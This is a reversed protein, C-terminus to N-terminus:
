FKGIVNLFIGQDDFTLDTLDDSFKGFNYGIGAKVNKGFHRYGAVVAGLDTTNASPSTLVRAELLLDWNHVVHVDARVIGLHASSDSYIGSGRFTEVQGIRFGYKGGISLNNNIRYTADASLVHSNQRPGFTSGDSTVQDVGPLDYLFTYKFLANLRDNDIPRYAFGLSAEIYDGDLFDGQDSQSILGDLKGVFRWNPNVKYGIGGTFLYSEADRTDDDSDDLRIEGRLRATFRDEDKYSVGVSIAKRDFDSANPDEIRGVELGGDVTWVNDPTYTVGYTSTLERRKGFVDYNNESYASWQDDYRRKAGLVIQGLDDGDLSQDDKSRESELRYAIYYQEDATPNYTIGALADLGTTGQSIEGEVAIKESLRIKTGVGLRDNRGRSGSTAATAQAFAYFERDENPAYAVQVAIDTRAGKDEPDGTPDRLNSYKAGLTVKWYEDLQYSADATAQERKKGDDDSFNEYTLGLTLKESLDLHAFAGWIRQDVDVNHDLTEFGEEKEEFYAGIRGAIKGQSIDALDLQANVRWASSIRNAIGAPTEDIITLGGDTSNSTSFGPGKTQAYEASVFTTESHRVKLDVGLMEQDSEIAGNGTEEVMGTVGFRVKDAMWTQARGGYSYGDVDGSTPTYEYQAVLNLAYDGLASDRVVSAGTATSSIPRSLIIVGQIYDITYDEGYNLQLTEVVNGTVPDRLQVSVTESGISIDQRKLFYASGGTGRLVDRQPLTGPQAAYLEVETKREGFSTTAESRYRAQAGYLTRESRLYRDSKVTSKFNGWMVHSDNREVKVFFKGSTPADEKSTSDDGYVPYYKDPDIRRLLERPNKSDLGKFLDKIEEEGTDAAATILYRGKVKGKLYFALRGRTYVDDYEGPAAAVVSDSGFRKGLTFDILGVYFLDNSPINISRDVNVGDNEAGEVTVAVNHDGPPLIRQVVFSSDKDVPVTEDLASVHYGPPVDRGFVTVAGGYVPINRKATRDEGNGASVPAEDPSTSHKDFDKSTRTIPLPVTEDFRDRDDYVRLVYEYEGSDGQRPMDWTAYGDADVPVIAIPTRTRNGKGNNYVLIESRNIWAPYNSTALFEIPTGVKYSSRTDVTSVNLIPEVDLGDYKIQIDVAELDVDVQREADVKADISSTLLDGAITQGDVSISFGEGGTPASSFDEAETNNGTPLAVIRSTKEDAPAALGLTTAGLASLCAFLAAILFSYFCNWSMLPNSSMLPHISGGQTKQSDRAM